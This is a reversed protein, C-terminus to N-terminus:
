KKWSAILVLQDAIQRRIIEMQRSEALIDSHTRAIKERQKWAQGRLAGTRAHLTKSEMVARDFEDLM